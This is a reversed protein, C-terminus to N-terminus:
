GLLYISKVLIQSEITTKNRIFYIIHTFCQFILRNLLLTFFVGPLQQLIRLLPPKTSGALLLQASVKSPLLVLVGLISPFLTQFVPPAPPDGGSELQYHFTSIITILCVNCSISPSLRSKM